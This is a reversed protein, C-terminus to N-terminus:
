RREKRDHWIEDPQRRPGTRRRVDEWSLVGAAARGDAGATGATTRGAATGATVTAVDRRDRDFGIRHEGDARLERIDSRFGRGDGSAFFRFKRDGKRFLVTIDGSRREVAAFWGPVVKVDRVVIVPGQLVIVVSGAGAVPIVTPQVPPPLVVPPAPPPAPPPSTTTTPPETTTTPPETTTTTTVEVDFTARRIRLNDDVIDLSLDTARGETDFNILLWDAALTKSSSTWGPAASVAVVELGAETRKVTVTGAGDASVQTEAGVALPELVAHPDTTLTASAGDKPDNDGLPGPTIVGSAALVGALCTAGLAKFAILM